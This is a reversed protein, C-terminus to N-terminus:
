QPRPLPKIPLDPGRGFPRKQRGHSKIGSPSSTSRPTCNEQRMTWFARIGNNFDCWEKDSYSCGSLLLAFILYKM